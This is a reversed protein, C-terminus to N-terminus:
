EEPMQFVANGEAGPFNLFRTYQDCIDAIIEKCREQSDYRGIDTWSDGNFVRILREVEILCDINELNILIRKDKSLILM